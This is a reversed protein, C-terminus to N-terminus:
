VFSHKSAKRTMETLVEMGAVEKPVELFEFNLVLPAMLLKLQMYAYRKGFCGRIGGGFPLTPGAQPDFKIIGAEDEYLWREPMFLRINDDNWHRMSQKSERQGKTRLTEDISFAPSNFSPGMSVLYVPTGKPVHFGLITTDVIADRSIGAAPAQL